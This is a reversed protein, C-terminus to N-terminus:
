AALREDGARPHRLLEGSDAVEYTGVRSLPPSYAHLTLAPAHGAHTVRHIASPEVTFIAGEGHRTAVPTGLALREDVIAGEVVAIAAAADDHDHFGTDHGDMWAVIWVEVHETALVRAYQREAPDHRVEERWIPLWVALEAVVDRLEATSLEREPIVGREV